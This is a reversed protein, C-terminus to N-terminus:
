RTPPINLANAFRNFYNFVGIVATIEVIQPETWFAALEDFTGTQVERDCTIEQAYALAARWAPAFADINGQELAVLQEHTAGLRTALLTHSALCYECRNLHSVRVALLEKLQMDVEGKGMVAQLHAALTAEIAPRHAAIRFLNPVKGRQRVFTEFSEKLSSDVNETNLRSVRAETEM